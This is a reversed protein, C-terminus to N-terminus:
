EDPGVVLTVGLDQGQSLLDWVTGFCWRAGIAVGLVIVVLLELIKDREPWWFAGILPVPVLVLTPCFTPNVLGM